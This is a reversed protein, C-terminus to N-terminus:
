PPLAPLEGDILTREFVCRALSASQMFAKPDLQRAAHVVKSRWRYMEDVVEYARAKDETSAGVYDSVATAISKTKQAVSSIGFLVEMATWILTMAQEISPSWSAADFLSFARYFRDQHYLRGARPLLNRVFFLDDEDATCLDTKFVGLHQPADEFAHAQATRWQAGMEMFPMSGVVVMRIPAYMRLRFLAAILWATLTPTLTDVVGNGAVTLEVRSKFSFGGNVAVWPTPHATGMKIPAAFAMMPADFIDVYVRRLLLGPGLDYTEGPLELATLCGYLPTSDPDWARRTVARKMIQSPDYEM